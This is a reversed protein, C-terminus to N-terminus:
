ELRALSFVFVTAGGVVTPPLDLRPIGTVSSDRGAMVAVYQVGAVEYVIPSADSHATLVHEWLVAGTWADFARFTRDAFASFVLGGATALVGADHPYGLVFEWAVHGSVPDIATLAGWREGFDEDDRLEAQLRAGGTGPQWDHPIGYPGRRLCSVNNPRYLLNTDPSFAAPAIHAWRSGPCLRRVDNEFQFRMRDDIIAAGDGTYGIHVTGDTVMAHAGLFAGDALDILVIYGTTTALLAVRRREGAIRLDAVVPVTHQDYEWEDAPVVQHFWRLHGTAADLGVFGSSYFDASPTGTDRRRPDLRDAPIPEGTGYIVTGTSADYAGANWASAGGVGTRWGPATPVWTAFAPDDESVPVTHFTWAISGDSSTLAVIAGPVPGFDVGSPGVVLLDGALIPNTTLIQALGPDGVTTRWLVDGSSADLGVIDADGVVAYVRGRDVVPTGRPASARFRSGGVYDEERHQWILTGIAADLAIVGDSTSVYMIGDAVAIGGQVRGGFGLGRSWSLRLGHVNTANVQDLPSFRDAGPDGGHQPWSSGDTVPSQAWVKASAGLVWM